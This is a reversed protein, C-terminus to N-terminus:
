MPAPCLFCEFSSRVFVAQCKRLQLTILTTMTHESIEKKFGNNQGTLYSQQMCNAHGKLLFWNFGNNQGGGDKELIPFNVACAKLMLIFSISSQM